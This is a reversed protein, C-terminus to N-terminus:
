AIRQAHTADRTSRTGPTPYDEAVRTRLGSGMETLSPKAYPMAERLGRDAHVDLARLLASCADPFCLRLSIVEVHVHRNGAPIREFDRNWGFYVPV